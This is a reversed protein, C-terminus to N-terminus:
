RNFWTHKKISSQLSNRLFGSLILWSDATKALFTRVRRFHRNLPVCFGLEIPWWRANRSSWSFIITSFTLFWCSALWDKVRFCNNNDTAEVKSLTTVLPQDLQKMLRYKSSNFIHWDNGLSADLKENWAFIQLLMNHVDFCIHFAGRLESVTIEIRCKNSYWIRTCYSNTLILLDRIQRSLISSNWRTSHDMLRLLLSQRKIHECDPSSHWSLMDIFSWVKQSQGTM